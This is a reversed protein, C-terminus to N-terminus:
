RPVGWYRPTSIIPSTSRLFKYFNSGEPPTNHSGPGIHAREKERNGAIIDVIRCFEEVASKSAIWRKGKIFQVIGPLVRDKRENKAMDDLHMM